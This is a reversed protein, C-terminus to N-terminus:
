ASPRVRPDLAGYVLDVAVNSAIVLVAYVM